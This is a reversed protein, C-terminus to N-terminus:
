AAYKWFGGLIRITLNWIDALWKIMNYLQCSNLALTYGDDGGGGLLYVVVLGEIWSLTVESM